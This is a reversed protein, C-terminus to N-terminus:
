ASLLLLRAELIVIVIVRFARCSDQCHLLGLNIVPPEAAISKYVVLGAV